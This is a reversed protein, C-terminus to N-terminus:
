LYKDYALRMINKHEFYDQDYHISMERKSDEQELQIEKFCEIVIQM